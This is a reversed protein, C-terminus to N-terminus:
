NGAAPNVVGAITLTAQVSNGLGCVLAGNNALTITVVNGAATSTASCDSFGGTLGITPTASNFSFAGPPGPSFSVTITNGAILAGSGTTKFSVTYTLTNGATSTAPDFSVQSVAAIVYPGVLPGGSGLPAAG